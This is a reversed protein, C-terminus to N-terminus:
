GHSSRPMPLPTGCEQAVVPLNAAYIKGIKAKDLTARAEEFTAKYRAYQPRQILKDFKRLSKKASQEECHWTRMKMAKASILRFEKPLAQTAYYDEITDSGNMLCTVLVLFPHQQKNIRNAVRHSLKNLVYM